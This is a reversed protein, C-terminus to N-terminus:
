FNFEVEGKAYPIVKTVEDIIELNGDKLLFDKVDM